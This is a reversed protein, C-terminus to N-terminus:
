VIEACRKCVGFLTMHHHSITFGAIVKQTPLSCEIATVSDCKECVLHDHHHARLEYKTVDNALTQRCVLGEALMKDLTRYITTKNFQAKLAILRDQIEVASLLHHDTLLTTIQQKALPLRGM